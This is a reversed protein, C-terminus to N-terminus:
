NRNKQLYGLVYVAPANWNICVENSAFSPEVDMYAKAPFESAYEVEHADQRDDNPGGIIFGPVPDAISDAGSPRHHPFMVRKSGFGTLFSYGTANKGFIYDTIQEAGILYKEEGTLRHAVCLILAQNLIDSNSGWEYNNLAIRYPHNEIKKLIDNALDTHGQVLFQSFDKDLLDRNELLSHFGVNRVFNKWSDALQHKYEQQYKSIASKYKDDQTALYLETAAWFFDDSFETDGYEGTKVDEPNKYPISDNNVAWVWAKESAALATESWKPDIEKYLRSAQALVAAFDLTSATGKGIIYRDLDYAEPMIFGGFTKATLKFFVGGDDDQMTQIWNLEYMLEDWLDSINNDGEPIDLRRDPIIDPYQELLLLMQGTSLSANVIYKGYDGADYWGGPSNRSGETRGTSPHYFCQDDPHGAERKYIGGYQEEITMSARQYYYSKIAAKLAGRYMEKKIKFPYSAISDDVVVYYAGPATFSSFDGMLVKEGSAEWTGHDVLEGSFVKNQYADVVKFSSAETDVITFQKVSTPYYGLQNIRIQDSIKAKSSGSNCSATLILLASCFVLLIKM